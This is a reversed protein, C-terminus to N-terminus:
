RAMLLHEVGEARRVIRKILISVFGMPSGLGLALRCPVAEGLRTIGSSIFSLYNPAGKCDRPRKGLSFCDTITRVALEARPLGVQDTSHKQVCQFLCYDHLPRKSRHSNRVIEAWRQWSM